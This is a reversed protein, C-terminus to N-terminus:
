KLPQFEEKGFNKIYVSSIGQCINNLKCGKCRQLKMKGKLSETKYNEDLHGEKFHYDEIHGLQSIMGGSVCPPFDILVFKKKKELYLKKIIKMVESYRPMLLNFRKKAEDKPNFMNFIIQDPNFKIFFDYIESLYHFNIKIITTNITFNKLAGKQRLKQINDLGKCTQEFSKPTRTLSEHLNKNHGHISVGIMNLGNKILDDCFKRYSLLRGNTILSIESYGSDKAYSILELLNKNLTPEGFTFVVRNFKKVSEILIEKFESLPIGKIKARAERNEMCFICNNNCCYGITMHLTKEIKAM